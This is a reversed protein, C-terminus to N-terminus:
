CCTSQGGDLVALGDLLNHGGDLGWGVGLVVALKRASKAALLQRGAACFGAFDDAQNLQGLLARPGALSQINLNSRYSFCRRNRNASPSWLHLDSM